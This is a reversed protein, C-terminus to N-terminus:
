FTKTQGGDIIFCSGTIFSSRPSSLFLVLDAVEEPKGFRRLPVKTDLMKAVDKPKESQKKDWIGDKFFINGPAIINVRVEPALKFSLSKCLSRLSSKAVSYVTPAGVEEIGAISSTFLLVGRSSKLDSKFIMASNLCSIFNTKWSENWNDINEISNKGLSGDGVNSIVIDIKNSMKDLIIKKAIKMSELDTADAQVHKINNNQFKKNKRSVVIVNSKHNAFGNAIALGIGKTGGIIIVNKNDLDLNM